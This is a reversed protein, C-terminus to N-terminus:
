TTKERIERQGRETLAYRGERLKPEVLGWERGRSVYGAVNTAAAAGPWASAFQAVLEERSPTQKIETLVRRWAGYDDELSARLYVSFARWSAEPHPPQPMLGTAELLRMLVDAEPTPAVVYGKGDRRAGALKLAFIPGAPGRVLDITGVMHEAFRAEASQRKPRNLPFGVSAKLEGDGRESDMGALNAGQTWAADLVFALYESWPMPANREFTATLLRHTAWITPYDRNHLGYLAGKIDHAALTRAAIDGAEHTIPRATKETAAASETKRKTKVVSGLLILPTPGTLPRMREEAIRDSVAERIFDDRGNYAGSKLITEDMERVLTTPLWTKVLRTAAPAPARKTKPM